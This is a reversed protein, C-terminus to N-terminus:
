HIKRLLILNQLQVTYNIDTLNKINLLSNFSQLYPSFNFYISVKM